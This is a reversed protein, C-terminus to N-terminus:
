EAGEPDFIRLLEVLQDAAIQAALHRADKLPSSKLEQVDTVSSQLCYVVVKRQDERLRFMQLKDAMPREKRGNPSARAVQERREV